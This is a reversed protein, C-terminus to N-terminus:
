WAMGGLLPGVKLTMPPDKRAPQVGNQGPPSATYFSELVRINKSTTDCIVWWKGKVNFGEYISLEIYTHPFIPIGDTITCKDKEDAVYLIATSDPNALIVATRADNPELLEGVTLGADVAKTPM